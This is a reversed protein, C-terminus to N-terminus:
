AEGLLRKLLCRLYDARCNLSCFLLYSGAVAKANDHPHDCLSGAGRFRGLRGSGSGAASDAWFRSERRTQRFKVSGDCESTVSSDAANQLDQQQDPFTLRGVPALRV